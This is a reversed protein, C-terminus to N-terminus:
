RPRLDIKLAAYGDIQFHEVHLTHKGAPLTLDVPYQTPGQYKWANTILPKGDLLVRCGDDTTVDLRYKGAPVEFTGEAVTAYHDPPLGPRFAAGAYSLRETREALLPADTLRAAFAEPKTRPDSAEDWRYWKVQWDIPAFFERFGFTVPTNAPTIIGRYDTTAKGRYELEVALDVAKGNSGQPFTVTINGPVKGSQASLTVGKSIRKVRWTGTPGLIDFRRQQQARGEGSRPWLRPSRFDYPGWEDVLIYRRGRLSGASLFPTKGGPLPAPAAMSRSKKKLPNWSTRFRAAYAAADSETALNPAGSPQMTPGLLNVRLSAAPASEERNGAPNLGTVATQEGLPITNIFTNNTVALNDSRVLSLAPRFVGEFRNGTITYNHSRTDHLKPYAWNPDQKENAWLRIGEIDRLFTNGSITNNQGHEIAVSIANYGFVNDVIKTDFSYGGWVGHWCELVLNNAFTNRSFTAEIGNTPAHSFDNGYVNNDNCGGKGTDMTTQGAWLFFGDGGHTVSNYAFTNRSSQEYVLIGASDQGRNYVGHSYGRVCWDLRNHMVKNDSSRYLAVGLASLFSFENNWVKGSSCNTLMLGSQGGTVRCDRVEFNSCNRLYIGVGFRLWEDKENQHYSMWDAVDERDLTSKLRQKWNYSFDCGIIKLGPADRAILGVKYGHVRVNKVTINKGLVVIGFGRRQDPPTTAPTGRLTAGGFDVVLNNGRIVVAAKAEAASASPLLFTGGSFRSSKTLVTGPKLSPPAATAASM